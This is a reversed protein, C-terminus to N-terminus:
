RSPVSSNLLLCVISALLRSKASPMAFLTSQELMVSQLRKDSSSLSPEVLSSINETSEDEGSDDEESRKRKKYSCCETAPLNADVLYTTSGIKKLTLDVETSQAALDELTQEFRPLDRLSLSTFVNNSNMRKSKEICFSLLRTSSIPWQLGDKATTVLHLLFQSIAEAFLETPEDM